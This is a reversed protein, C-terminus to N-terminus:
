GLAAGKSLKSVGDGTADTGESHTVTGEEGLVNDEHHSNTWSGQQQCTDPPYLKDVATVYSAFGRIAM